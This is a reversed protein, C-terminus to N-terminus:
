LNNLWGGLAGIDVGAFWAVGVALVVLVVITVLAAIYGHKVYIDGIWATITKM